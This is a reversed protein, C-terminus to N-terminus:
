KKKEIDESSTTKPTIIIYVIYSFLDFEFLTRTDKSIRKNISMKERAMKFFFPVSHEKEKFKVPARSQILHAEGNYICWLYRQTAVPVIKVRQLNISTPLAFRKPPIQVKGDPPITHTHQKM